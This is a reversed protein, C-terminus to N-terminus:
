EAVGGRERERGFGNFGLRKSKELYRGYEHLSSGHHSVTRNQENITTTAVRVNADATRASVLSLCPRGRTHSCHRDRWAIAPQASARAGVNRQPPRRACAALRAQSLPRSSGRVFPRRRDTRTDCIKWAVCRLAVCCRYLGLYGGSEEHRCWEM